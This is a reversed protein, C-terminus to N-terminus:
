GAAEDELYSRIMTEFDPDSQFGLAKARTMDWAGPWSQVISEVAPDPAFSVRAVAM